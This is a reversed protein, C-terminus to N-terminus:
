ESTTARRLQMPKSREAARQGVAPRASHDKLAGGSSPPLQDLSFSGAAVELNDDREAHKELWERDLTFKM